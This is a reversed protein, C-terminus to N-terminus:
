LFWYINTVHTAEVCCGYVNLGWLSVSQAAESPSLGYM